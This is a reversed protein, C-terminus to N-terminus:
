RTSVRERSYVKWFLLVTDRSVTFFNKPSLAKSRGAKRGRLTFGVEKYSAGGKILPVLMSAMYTFGSTSFAFPRALATRAINPGNYYRLNLRFLFNFIAIFFKSLLQRGWPRIHSNLPYTVILDVEGCESFIRELSEETIENDGPVLMSFPFHAQTIGAWYNYGLGRPTPNRFLRLHPNRSLLEKVVESTQDTSGDDFVLIEYDSLHKEAPRIISECTQRINGEENLAPVILSLTKKSPSM